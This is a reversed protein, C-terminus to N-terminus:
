LGVYGIKNQAWLVALSVFMIISERKSIQLKESMMERSIVVDENTMASWVDEKSENQTEDILFLFNEYDNRDFEFVVKVKQQEM